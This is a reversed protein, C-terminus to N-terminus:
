TWVPRGSGARVASVTAMANYRAISIVKQSGLRLRCQCLNAAASLGLCGRSMSHASAGVLPICPVFTSSEALLSVAMGCFGLTAVYRSASM